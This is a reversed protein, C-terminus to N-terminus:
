KIAIIIDLVVVRPLFDDLAHYSTLPCSFVYKELCLATTQSYILTILMMAAPTNPFLLIQYSPNGFASVSSGRNNSCGPNKIPPGSDLVELTVSLTM